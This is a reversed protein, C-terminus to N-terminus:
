RLFRGRRLHLPFSQLAGGDVNGPFPRTVSTRAFTSGYLWLAIQQFPWSQPTLPDQPARRNPRCMKPAAPQQLCLSSPHLCSFSGRPLLNGLLATGLYLLGSHASSQAGSSTTQTKVLRLSSLPPYIRSDCWSCSGSTSPHIM